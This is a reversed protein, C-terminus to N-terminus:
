GLNEADCFFFGAEIKPFYTAEHTMCSLRNHLVRIRSTNRPPLFPPPPASRSVFTDFSSYLDQILSNVPRLERLSAKIKFLTM